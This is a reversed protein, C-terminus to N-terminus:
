RWRAESRGSHTRQSEALHLGSRSLALKSTDLSRTKARIIGRRPLRVSHGRSIRTHTGTCPCYGTLSPRMSDQCHGAAHCLGPRQKAAWPGFGGPSDLEVKRRKGEKRVLQDIRTIHRTHRRSLQKHGKQSTEPLFNQETKVSGLPVSKTTPLVEACWRAASLAPRWTPAKRLGQQRAKYRGPLPLPFPPWITRAPVHRLV